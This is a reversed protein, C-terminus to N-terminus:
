YPDWKLYFPCKIVSQHRPSTLSLFKYGNLLISCLVTIHTHTHVTVVSCLVTIHTHTHASHSSFLACYYTHTHVTVVSCLVTIHTHTHVTVLSCLVTIHTHTCQSLPMAQIFIVVSLLSVSVLLIFIDLVLFDTWESRKLVYRNTTMQRGTESGVTVLGFVNTKGKSKM